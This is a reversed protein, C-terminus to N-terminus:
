RRNDNFERRSLYVAGFGAVTERIEGLHEATDREVKHAQELLHTHKQETERRLQEVQQTTYNDRQLCKLELDAILKANQRDSEVIRDRLKINEAASAANDDSLKKFRDFVLKGVLGSIVIYILSVLSIWDGVTM